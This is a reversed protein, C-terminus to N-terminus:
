LSKPVFSCLSIWVHKSNLRLLASSSRIGSSSSCLQLIHQKQKPMEMRSHIHTLYFNGFSHWEFMKLWLNYKNNNNACPMSFHKPAFVAFRGVLTFSHFCCICVIVLACCRVCSFDLTRSISISFTGPIPSDATATTTLLAMSHACLIRRCNEVREVNTQRIQTNILM